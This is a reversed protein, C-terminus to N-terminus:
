KKDRMGLAIKEADIDINPGQISGLHSAALNTKGFVMSKMAHRHSTPCWNSLASKSVAHCKCIACKLHHEAMDHSGQRYPAEAVHDEYAAEIISKRKVSSTSDPSSSGSNSHSGSFSRAGSRIRPISLFAFAARRSFPSQTHCM